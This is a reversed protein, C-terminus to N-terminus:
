RSTPAPRPVHAPLRRRRGASPPAGALVPDEPVAALAPDIPRTSLRFYASTGGPVGVQSMAHLFCWELDTPRVGAGLGRLRAAGPRDVAHHDVPPRRGRAGADGGIPHRGPDVPRRRLDRLVLAGARPVRVPRLAHRDPDAARGVPSWTAGLEGLLGVLNVEAIGLEIHQGNSVESWRLVRETDDAFWDQRDHVSWVGTKNIWGGLNTSSAVDPSCTVVRAATEPADRKLDALLRGLAAQTSVRSATATAWRPPCRSRGRHARTPVRRLQERRNPACRRRAASGAPVAALAGRTSTGSRTRWIRCRRRPSCPRTTTRTARPPCGAARSPTPSFSPPATPTSPASRTSSCGSTTAASIASRRPSTTPRFPEGGAGAAARGTPTAWSGSARGGVSDVRLM